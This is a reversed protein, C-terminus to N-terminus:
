RAQANLARSLRRIWFVNGVSAAAGL